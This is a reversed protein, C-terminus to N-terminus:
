RHGGERPISSGLRRGRVPATLLQGQRSREELEALITVAEGSWVAQIWRKYLEEREAQPQGAFAASFVYSLAHVFDLIPTFSGFHRRQITGNVLLGDGLFPQADPKAKKLPPRTRRHSITGRPV